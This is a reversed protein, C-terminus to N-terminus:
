ISQLRAKVDKQRSRILLCLRLCIRYMYPYEKFKCVLSFQRTLHIPMVEAREILGEGSHDAFAIRVSLEPKM